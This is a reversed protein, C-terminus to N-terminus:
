IQWPPTTSTIQYLCQQLLDYRLRLALSDYRSKSVSSFSCDQVLGDIYVQPM